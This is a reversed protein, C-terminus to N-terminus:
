HPIKRGAAPQSRGMGLNHRSRLDQTHLQGRTCIQLLRGVVGQPGNGHLPHPLRAQSQALGASHYAQAKYPLQRSVWKRDYRNQTFKSFPEVPEAGAASSSM